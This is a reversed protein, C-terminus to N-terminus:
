YYSRLWIRYIARIIETHILFYISLSIIEFLKLNINCIDAVGELRELLYEVQIYMIWAL